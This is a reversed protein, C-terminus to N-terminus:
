KNKIKENEFDEWAYTLSIASINEKETKSFNEIVIEAQFQRKFEKTIITILDRLTVQHALEQLSTIRKKLSAVSVGWLASWLKYDIDLLISGHQLLKDKKRKQASGVLKKGFVEIEYSSIEQFCILSKSPIKNKKMQSGVGFYLFVKQLINSIIKYFELVGVTINQAIFSYTLEKHHLVTKGGTKRIVGEIGFRNIIVFDLVSFDANFIGFSLTPNSWQYFRLVPTKSNNLLYEDAAMNWKADFFNCPIIRIKSFEMILKIFNLYM